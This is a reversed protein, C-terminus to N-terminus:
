LAPFDLCDKKLLRQKDVEEQEGQHGPVGALQLHGPGALAPDSHLGVGLITQLGSIIFNDGTPLNAAARVKNYLPDDSFEM